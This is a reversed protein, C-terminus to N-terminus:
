GAEGRLVHCRDPYRGGTWSGLGSLTLRPLPYHKPPPTHGSPSSSRPVYVTMKRPTILPYPFCRWNLAGEGSWVMLRPTLIDLPHQGLTLYHIHPHKVHRSPYTLCRWPKSQPYTRIQLATSATHGKRVRQTTEVEAGPHRGRWWLACHSLRRSATRSVTLSCCHSAAAGCHTENERESVVRLLSAGM